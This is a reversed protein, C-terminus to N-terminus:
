SNILVVRFYQENLLLFLFNIRDRISLIVTFLRVVSTTKTEGPVYDLSYIAVSLCKEETKLYLYMFTKATHSGIIATM